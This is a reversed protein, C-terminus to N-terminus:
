ENGELYPNWEDGRAMTPRNGGEEENVRAAEDWGERGEDSTAMERTELRVWAAWGRSWRVAKGLRAKIELAKETIGADKVAFLLMEEDHTM